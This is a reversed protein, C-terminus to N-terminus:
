FHEFVFENFPILILGCLYTQLLISVFMSNPCGNNAIVSDCWDWLLPYFGSYWLALELSLDILARGIFFKHRAEQHKQSDEFDKPKIEDKMEEPVDYSKHM